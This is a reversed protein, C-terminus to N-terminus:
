FLLCIKNLIMRVDFNVLLSVRADIEIKVFCEVTVSLTGVIDSHVIVNRQTTFAKM